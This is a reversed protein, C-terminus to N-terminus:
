LSIAFESWSFFANKTREAFHGTCIDIPVLFPVMSLAMNAGWFHTGCCAITETEICFDIGM